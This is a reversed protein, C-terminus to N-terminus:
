DKFTKNYLRDLEALDETALPPLDSCAAAEELEAVTKIGPVVTAIAPQDLCFRLAVQSLTAFPGKKLFALQRSRAYDRAVDSDPPAERDLVEALAGAAHSRICIVGINHGQAVALAQGQDIDDFGAPPPSAASQNLLNYLIQATHFGGSALLAQVVEPHGDWATIGLFRVKGEQVLQNMAEGLNQGVEQTLRYAYRPPPGAAALYQGGGPGLQHHIQLVDIHDTRLRGLSREVSGRVAGPLDALDEETQLRVKTAIYVQERVGALGRGLNEESQGGGYMPSTDFFNIGLDVARRVAQLCEEDTTAGWAYGIGAGGFGVESVSLGTRGLTRYKM